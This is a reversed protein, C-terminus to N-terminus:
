RGLVRGHDGRERESCFAFDWLSCESARCSGAEEGSERRARIVETVCMPEGGTPQICWHGLEQAQVEKGSIRGRFLHMSKGERNVSRQESIDAKMKGKSHDMGLDSYSFGFLLEM